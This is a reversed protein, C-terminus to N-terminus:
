LPCHDFGLRLFIRIKWRFSRGRELSNPVSSTIWYPPHPSLVKGDVKASFGFVHVFIRPVGM